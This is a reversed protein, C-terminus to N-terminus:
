LQKSWSVEAESSSSSAGTGLDIEEAAAYFSEIDYYERQEPTFIQVVVDGYDLVEWPSSGPVNQKTRQFREEAAKEIRAMCALLQPKSIVTLFLMYNTWSVLPAVHLLTIDKAKVDEAVMAVAAAFALSEEDIDEEPVDDDYMADDDDEASDQAASSALQATAHTHVPQRRSTQQLPRQM